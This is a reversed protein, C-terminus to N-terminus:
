DRSQIESKAKKDYNDYFRSKGYRIVQYVQKGDSNSGDAYTVPIIASMAIYLSFSLFVGMRSSNEIIGSKILLFLIIGTIFQFIVGGLLRIIKKVKSIDDPIDGMCIGYLFYWSQVEFIGISFLKKGSGIVIKTTKGGFAFNFFAHGLEHILIIIPECVFIGFMIEYPTM